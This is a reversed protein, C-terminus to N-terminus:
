WNTTPCPLVDPLSPAFPIFIMDFLITPPTAPNRAHQRSAPHTMGPGRFSVDSDYL